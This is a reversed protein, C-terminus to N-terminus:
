KEKFTEDMYWLKFIVESSTVDNGLVRSYLVYDLIEGKFSPIKADKELHLTINDIKNTVEM